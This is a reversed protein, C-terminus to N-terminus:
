SKASKKLDKPPASQISKFVRKLSNRGYNLKAMGMVKDVVTIKENYVFDNSTFEELTEKGHENLMHREFAIFKNFRERCDTLPCIYTFKHKEIKGNELDLSSNLIIIFVKSVVDQRELLIRM